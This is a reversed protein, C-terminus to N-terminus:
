GCAVHRTPRGLVYEIGAESWDADCDTTLGTAYVLDLLPNGQGSYTVWVDRGGVDLREAMRDASLIRYSSPRAAQDNDSRDARVTGAGDYAYREKTGEADTVTFALAPLHVLGELRRRRLRQCRGLTDAIARATGGLARRPVHAPRRIAGAAAVMALLALAVTAALLLVRVRDPHEASRWGRCGRRCRDCDQASDDIAGLTRSRLGPQAQAPLHTRLAQAIQADTLRRGNM